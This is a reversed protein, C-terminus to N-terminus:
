YGQSKNEKGLDDDELKEKQNNSEDLEVKGGEDIKEMDENQKNEDDTSQEEIKPDQNIKVDSEDLKEQNDNFKNNEEKQYKEEYDDDEIKIKLDESEELKQMELESEEEIVGLKKLAMSGETYMEVSHIYYEVNHYTINLTITVCHLLRQLSNCVLVYAAGQGQVFLPESHSQCDFLFYKKVTDGSMGVALVKGRCQVIGYRYKTFLFTLGECLNMEDAPQPKYLVGYLLSTIHVQFKFSMIQCSRGLDELTLEHKEVAIDAMSNEFYRNGQIVIEDILQASWEDIQYLNAMLCAVVSIAM